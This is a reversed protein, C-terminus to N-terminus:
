FHVNKVSAGGLFILECMISYLYSSPWLFQDKNRVFDINSM